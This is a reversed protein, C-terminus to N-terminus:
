VLGVVIRAIGANPLAVRLSETLETLSYLLEVRWLPSACSVRVVGRSFRVGQIPPRHGWRENVLRLFASSVDQPEVRRPGPSLLSQLKTVM